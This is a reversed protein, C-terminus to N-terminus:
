VKCPTFIDAYIIGDIDAATTVGLVVWSTLISLVDELSNGDYCSPYGSVPGVIAHRRGMIEKASRAPRIVQVPRDSAVFSGESM